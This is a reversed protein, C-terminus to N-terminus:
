SVIVLVRKLTSKSRATTIFINYFKTINSIKKNNLCLAPDHQIFFSVFCVSRIVSNIILEPLFFFMFVFMPLCLSFFHNARYLLLMSFINMMRLQYSRANPDDGHYQRIIIFIISSYMTLMQYLHLIQSIGLKKQSFM